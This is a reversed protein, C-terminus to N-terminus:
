GQKSDGGAGLAPSQADVVECPGVAGRAVGLGIRSFSQGVSSEIVLTEDAALQGKAITFTAAGSKDTSVSISQQAGVSAPHEYRPQKCAKGAPLYNVVAEVGAANLKGELGDADKLSKITVTVSGDAHSNVAYAPSAGGSVLLTATIAGVGISAIGGGVAFRRRFSRAGPASPTSFPPPNDAVVARLEHLLRDEFREETTNM